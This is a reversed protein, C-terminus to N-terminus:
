LVWDGLTLNFQVVTAKPKYGKFNYRQVLRRSRENPTEAHSALSINFNTGKVSDRIVEVKTAQRLPSTPPLQGKVLGPKFPKSKPKNMLCGMSFDVMFDM